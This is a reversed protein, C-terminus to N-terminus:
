IEEYETIFKFPASADYTWTIQITISEMSRDAQEINYTKVETGFLVGLSIQEEMYQDAVDMATSFTHWSTTIVTPPVEPQQGKCKDNGPEHCKVIPRGGNSSESQTVYYYGFRLQDRQKTFRPWASASAALFLLLSLITLQKM